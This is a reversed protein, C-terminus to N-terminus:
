RKGAPKVDIVDVGVARTFGGGVQVRIQHYNASISRTRVLGDSNPNGGGQITFSNDWVTDVSRVVTSIDSEENAGIGEVIPRYGLIISRKGSFPQVRKTDMYGTYHTANNLYWLSVPANGFFGDSFGSIVQQGGTWAQSDLSIGLADLSASIADLEELTYGPVFGVHLFHFVQSGYPAVFAFRIRGWRQTAYNYLLIDSQAGGGGAQSGSYAWCVIPLGPYEFATIRDLFSQDVDEQFTRDVKNVGIPLSQNGNFAYFRLDTGIYYIINGVKVV